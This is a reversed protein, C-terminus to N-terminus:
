TPMKCLIINSHHTNSSSSSSSTSSSSSSSLLLNVEDQHNPLTSSDSSKCHGNSSNVPKLVVASHCTTTTTPVQQARTSAIFRSLNNMNGSVPRSGCPTAQPTNTNTNSSSSSSTFDINSISTPVKSTNSAARLALTEFCMKAQKVSLPINLERSIEESKKWLECGNSQQQQQQTQSLYKSFPTTTEVSGNMVRNENSNKM